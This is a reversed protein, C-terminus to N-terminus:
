DSLLGWDRAWQRFEEAAEANRFKALPVVRNTAGIARYQASLWVGSRKPVPSIVLIAADQLVPHEETADSSM